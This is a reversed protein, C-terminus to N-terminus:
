SIHSYKDSRINAMTLAPLEPLCVMEVEEMEEADAQQKQQHRQQEHEHHSGTMNYQLSCALYKELLSWLIYRLTCDHYETMASNSHSMLISSIFAAYM